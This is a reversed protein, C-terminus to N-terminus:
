PPPSQRCDDCWTRDTDIGAADAACKTQSSAGYLVVRRVWKSLQVDSDSQFSPAYALLTTMSVTGLSWGVLVIGGKLKTHADDGGARLPPIAERKVLDALYDYVERGRDRM